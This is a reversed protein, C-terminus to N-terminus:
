CSPIDLSDKIKLEGAQDLVEVRVGFGCVCALTTGEAYLILETNKYWNIVYDGNTLDVDPSSVTLTYGGSACPTRSIEISFDASSLSHQLEFSQAELNILEAETETGTQISNNPTIEEKACSTMFLGVCIILYTLKTQLYM